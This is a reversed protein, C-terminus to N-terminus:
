GSIKPSICARVIHTHLLILNPWMLPSLTHITKLRVRASAGTNKTNITEGTIAEAAVQSAQIDRGPTYHEPPAGRHASRDATRQNHTNPRIATDGASAVERACRVSDCPACGSEVGSDERDSPPTTHRPKGFTTYATAPRITNATVAWAVALRRLHRRCANTLPSPPLQPPFPSTLRRRSHQPPTAGIHDGDTHTHRRERAARARECQTRHLNSNFGTARTPM